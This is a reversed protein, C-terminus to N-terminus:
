GDLAVLADGVSYVTEEHVQPPITEASGGNWALTGREPPTFNSAGTNGADHASQLWTGTPSEPSLAIKM